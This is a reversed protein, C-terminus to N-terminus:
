GGSFEGVPRALDADAFGLGHLLQGARSKASYGDIARYREHLEALAVGDGRREARELSTEIERLEADGDLTFDLASQPTAHHEQAVEAIVLGNSLEVEGRDAHLRGAILSFLSTKGCGNAGVVGVRQGRFLALDAGELLIKVGRALQVGRLTIMAHCGRPRRCVIDAHYSQNRHGGCM